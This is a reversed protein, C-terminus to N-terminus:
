SVDVADLVVRTTNNPHRGIRIQHVLGGEDGFRLTQDLLTTSPRTAALDVFVRVPGDIREEHFPVERDLDITVRIGDARPTGRIDRITAIGAGQAASVLVTSVAILPVCLARVAASNKGM